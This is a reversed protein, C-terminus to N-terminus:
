AALLRRQLLAQLGVGLMLGLRQFGVRGGYVLGSLNKESSGGKTKGVQYGLYPELLLDAHAPPVIMAAVLILLGGLGLGFHTLVRQM